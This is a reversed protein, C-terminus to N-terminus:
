SLHQALSEVQLVYQLLVIDVAMKAQSRVTWEFGEVSVVAPRRPGILVKGGCTSAAM